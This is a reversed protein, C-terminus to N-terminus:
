FMMNSKDTAKWQRILQEFFIFAVYKSSAIRVCDTFQWKKHQIINALWAHDDWDAETSTRKASKQFNYRSSNDNNTSRSLLRRYFVNYIRYMPYLHFDEDREQENDDDNDGDKQKSPFVSRKGFRRLLMTMQRILGFSSLNLYFLINVM